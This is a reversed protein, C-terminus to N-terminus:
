PDSDTVEPLISDEDSGGPCEEPQAEVQVPRREEPIM